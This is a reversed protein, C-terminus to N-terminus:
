LRKLGQTEKHELCRKYLELIVKKVRINEEKDLEEMKILFPGGFASNLVEEGKDFEYEYMMQLPTYLRIDIVFGNNEEDYSISNKDILKEDFFHIFESLELGRIRSYMLRDNIIYMKRMNEM